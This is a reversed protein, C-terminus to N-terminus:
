AMSPGGLSVGLDVHYRYLWAHAEPSAFHKLAFPMLLDRFWRAVPGATKSSSIRASYRVVREVRPRREQEYAAFARAPEGLDRLCKALVLADEIALSAGQGASPSTAHAADGLLVMAGRHWVPVTPLDHVPFAALTERTHELIERAPGKDDAVLALLRQKWERSAVSSLEARSSESEWPLNAFWFTEGSPRVSHSFFLRKGFMMHFTDPTPALGTGHAVGGLSLMGSYRARPAAPDLLQRTRSHLGDAGVLVDGRASTGDEFHAVVGSPGSEASLLRKGNEIHIGRRLAEDRLARHLLGRPITISTTGDELTLGNAVEGLRKGTGSWMVMRPTPFGSALVERDAGLARLGDLGNSAVNLFSGVFDAPREHGEYVVADIGVQQLAMAAVPGGIGCGIVVATSTRTKM